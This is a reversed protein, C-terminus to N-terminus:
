LESSLQELEDKGGCCVLFVVGDVGSVGDMTAFSFIALAQACWNEMM